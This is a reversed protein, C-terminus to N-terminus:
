VRVPHHRQPRSTPTPVPQQRTRSFRVWLSVGTVILVGAVWLDLLWPSVTGLLLSCPFAFLLPFSPAIAEFGAICRLEDDIELSVPDIAISPRGAVQNVNRHVLVCITGIAALYIWGAWGPHLWVSVLGLIASLALAIVALASRARGLVMWYSAPREAGVLKPAGPENRVRAAVARDSYQVLGHALAKAATLLVLAALYAVAVRRIWSSHEAPSSPLYVVASAIAGLILVYLPVCIVIARRRAALRDSLLARAEDSVAASLDSGALWRATRRDNRASKTAQM